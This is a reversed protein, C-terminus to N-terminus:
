SIFTNIDTVETTSVINGHMRKLALTTFNAGLSNIVTAMTEQGLNKFLNGMCTYCYGGDKATCYMPSRLKVTQGIYQEHTKDTIEVLEGGVVINRYVYEASNGKHIPQELVHSTGCDDETVRTNQFVRLIFKSEEGGKATEKARSYSGARIENAIAPFADQTWGEELSNPIFSFQGSEGFSEVMGHTIFLKKRVVGFHKGKLLYNMAEDGKLYDKDMAVLEAEIQSMVTADGADLSDKYQVLLERKRMLIAPDTGLAKRTLNPSCFEPSHGLFMLNEAYINFQDNTIKQNVRLGSVIEEIQEAKWNKNIYPILDSFPYSLILYNLIFRGIGTVIEEGSVHNELYGPPLIFATRPNMLMEGPVEIMGTPAITLVYDDTSPKKLFDMVRYFENTKDGDVLVLKGKYMPCETTVTASGDSSSTVSLREPLTLIEQLYDRYLLDEKHTILHRIKPDEITLPNNVSPTMSNKWDM